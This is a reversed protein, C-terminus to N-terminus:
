VVAHPASAKPHASDHLRGAIGVLLGRATSRAVRGFAIRDALGGLPGVPPRYRGRLVLSVEGSDDTCVGLDGEFSPALVGCPEVSAPEFRVLRWLGDRERHPRTVTAPVVMGVRGAWLHVLWRGEDDRFADPLWGAPDRRFATRAASLPLDLGVVVRLNRWGM